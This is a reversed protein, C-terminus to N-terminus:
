DVDTGDLTEGAAYLTMLLDKYVEADLEETNSGQNKRQKEKVKATGNKFVCVDLTFM